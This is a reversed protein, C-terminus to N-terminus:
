SKRKKTSKAPKEKVPETQPSLLRLMEQRQEDTLGSVLEQPKLGILREELNLGVLREEPTFQSLVDRMGQPYRERIAQILFGAGAVMDENYEKVVEPAYVGAAMLELIDRSAMYEGFERPKLREMRKLWTMGGQRLLAVILDKWKKTNSPAFVLWRLFKEEIPLNRCVVIVVKQLGVQAEFLWPRETTTTFIINEQAIEAFFGEPLRASIIVHLIDRYSVKEKKGQSELWFLHTRVVNKIFAEFDLQDNESKFEIINYRRFFDFLTGIIKTLDPVGLVMDARTIQAFEVALVELEHLLAEELMLEKFVPDARDQALEPPPAPKSKEEDGPM